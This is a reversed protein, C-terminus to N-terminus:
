KTFKINSLVQMKFYLFRHDIDKSVETNEFTEALIRLAQGLIQHREALKEVEKIQHREVLKNAENIIYIVHRYIKIVDLKFDKILLRSYNSILKALRQNEVTDLLYNIRMGKENLNFAIHNNLVMDYFFEIILTISEDTFSYCEYENLLETFLCGYFEQNNSSKLINKLAENHNLAFVERIGQSNYFFLTEIRKDCKEDFNNYSKWNKNVEEVRFDSINAGSPYLPNGGKRLCKYVKNEGLLFGFIIKEGLVTEATIYFNIPIPKEITEEIVYEGSKKTGIYEEIDDKYYRIDELLLDSNRMLLVVKNDRIVFTPRYQDRRDEIEQQKIINAEHQAKILEDNKEQQKKEFEEDRQKQNISFAYITFTISLATAYYGTYDKLLLLIKMIYRIPDVPLLTGNVLSIVFSILIPFIIIFFVFIKILYSNKQKM